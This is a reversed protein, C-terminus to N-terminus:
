GSGRRGSKAPSAFGGSLAPNGVLAVLSNNHSVSAAKAMTPPVVATQTISSQCQKMGSPAQRAASLDDGATIGTIHQFQGLLVPQSEERGHQQFQAFSQVLGPAFYGGGGGDASPLDFLLLRPQFGHQPLQGFAHQDAVAFGADQEVVRRRIFSSGL